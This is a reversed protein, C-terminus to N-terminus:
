KIEKLTRGNADKWQTRGNAKRGLVVGAATSNSGFLYDSEFRLVGGHSDDPTQQLVGNEGLKDRLGVM